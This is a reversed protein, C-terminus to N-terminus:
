NDQCSESYNNGELWHLPAALLLNESSFLTGDKTFYKKESKVWEKVKIVRTDELNFSNHRHAFIEVEYLFDNNVIVKEDGKVFVRVSKKKAM